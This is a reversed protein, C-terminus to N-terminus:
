QWRLWTQAATGNCDWVQVKAGPYMQGGSVDMCKYYNNGVHISLDSNYRFLQASTQNCPFLQLITGNTMDNNRVDLCSGPYATNRIEGYGDLTWQQGSAGNCPQLVVAANWGPAATPTLCWQRNGISIPAVHGEIEYYSRYGHGAATGSSPWQQFLYPMNWGM